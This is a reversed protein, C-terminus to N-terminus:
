VLLAQWDPRVVSLDMALRRLEVRHPQPPEDADRRPFLEGDVTFPGDFSAERATPERVVYRHSLERLMAPLTTLMQRDSLAPVYLAAFADGGPYVGPVSLSRVAGRMLTLPITSAVFGRAGDVVRGDVGLRGCTRSIRHGHERWIKSGVAQGLTAHSLFRLFGLYGAGLGEYVRLAELVLSSGLVFGVVRGTGESRVDLLGVQRVSLRAFPRGAFLERFRAVARLPVDKTGFARAFTNMTGGPMVLVAPVEPAKGDRRELESRLRVLLNVTHHLTGDGGAVALVNVREEFVLTTVARVLDAPSRTQWVLEAEPVLHGLLSFRSQLNRRSSLNGILGIRVASEPRLSESLLEVQRPTPLPLPVRWMSEPWAPRGDPSTDPKPEGDEAPKTRASM